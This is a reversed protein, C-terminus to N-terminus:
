KLSDLAKNLRSLADELQSGKSINDSIKGILGLIAKHKEKRGSHYNRMSDSIKKKTEDGHIRPKRKKNEKKMYEEADEQKIPFEKKDEKKNKKKLADSIKKKTEESMPTKKGTSLRPLNKM